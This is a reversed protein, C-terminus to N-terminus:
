CREVDDCDELEECDEEEEREDGMLGFFCLILYLPLMGLMLSIVVGSFTPNCRASGLITLLLWLVLLGGLIYILVITGM